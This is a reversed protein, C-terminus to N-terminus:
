FDIPELTPENSEQSDLDNSITELIEIIQTGNNGQRLMSIYIDKTM